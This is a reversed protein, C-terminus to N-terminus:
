CHSSRGTSRGDLAVAREWESKADADKGEQWDLFGLEEHAAALNADAELAKAIRMRGAAQDHAGIDLAGLEDNIEAASLVRVTFTKADLGKDPPLVGANLAFRSLYQSLHDQFVKPDGFVQQFAETQPTGSELLALFRDMKAGSEMEPSFTMFHVMAWAEGYFLDNMRQDKGFTGGNAVLMKPVPILSEGVLHRYRVSPAGVYIKDSQFRTYAYFEALGEDLWTPLWHLNAHLVSHTYEHFVVAQNEDGFTDLRVMAFQREWGTFFLGAVQERDKYFGAGLEKLGAERVAFITLPAGSELTAKRFRSAFVGHMQEFEKAVARGDRESGDTVVRFNPSRVERWTQARGALPLMAAM